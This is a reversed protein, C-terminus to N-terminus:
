PQRRGTRGPVGPRTLDNLTFIREVTEASLGSEALAVQRLTCGTAQATHALEAARDYGVHAILAAAAATSHELTSRCREADVEIGRICRETLLPVAACLLELMDLLSDAILPLFANLELQGMGAASTVAGDHAIVRLAVQTVMEPLVPNVKGPMISSGAQVAPLKLEALGGAPGGALLRLDGCLKLLTAACAKLLGSVEVYVDANQIADMPSEARALGLGTAQQLLDTVRYTYAPPANLGTGIATGGIPIVRLREEAKYIRWRDRAVAQAYAGFGQGVRMPLADMLETRGLRAVTDFEREKAQLAEQLAALADALRRVLHIAAIRLATPVVDNTSQSYNVDNVPHVLAYDGKQGGLLEIARNAVCENVNMNLSTGAGGQLSSTALDQAALGGLLDDCARAIADAKDAALLGAQGNAQAAARKVVLMADILCRKVPPAPLDFNLQARRTHIGAYGAAEVALEGLSDQEMRTLM